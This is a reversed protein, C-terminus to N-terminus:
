IHIYNSHFVLLNHRVMEHITVWLELDMNIHPNRVSTDIIIPYSDNEIGQQGRKGLNNNLNTHVAIVIAVPSWIRPRQQGAAGEGFILKELQSQNERSKLDGGAECTLNSFEFFRNHSMIVTEAVILNYGYTFETDSIHIHKFPLYDVSKSPNSRTILGTRLKQSKAATANKVESMLKAGPIIGHLRCHSIHATNNSDKTTQFASFDATNSRNTKIWQLFNPIPDHAENPLDKGLILYGDSQVNSLTTHAKCDSIYISPRSGQKGKGHTLDFRSDEVNIRRAAQLEILPLAHNLRRSIKLNKIDVYKGGTISISINENELVFNIDNFRVNLCNTFNLTSSTRITVSGACCAKICVSSLFSFDNLKRPWKYEGPLFELTIRRSFFYYNLGPKTPTAPSVEDEILPPLKVRDTIVDRPRWDQENPFRTLNDVVGPFVLRINEMNQPKTQLNAPIKKTAAMSVINSSSSQNLIASNANKTEKFFRHLTDLAESLTPYTSAEAYPIGTMNTFNDPRVKISCGNKSLKSCIKELADHVTPTDAGFDCKNSSFSVDKANIHTLDPFHPRLEEKFEIEEGNAQIIALGACGRWNFPKVPGTHGPIPPWMIDGNDMSQRGAFEWYDQSQLKGSFEVEIGNELKQKTGPTIPIGNDSHIAPHNWKTAIIPGIMSSIANAMHSPFSVSGDPNFGIKGMPGPMHNARLTEDRLEVIDGSEFNMVSDNQAGTLRYKPNGLVTGVDLTARICQRRYKFTPTGTQSSHHIEIYVNNNGGKYAADERILCSDEIGPDGPDLSVQLGATDDGCGPLDVHQGDRIREILEQRSSIGSHALVQNVTELVIKGCVTGRGTTDPGGLGPDRLISLNHYDYDSKTGLFYILYEEGANLKFLSNFSIEEPNEFLVGKIYLHGATVNFGSSVNPIIGFGPNSKPVGIEGIGDKLAIERQHELLNVCTNFDNATNVRGMQFVVKKDGLGIGAITTERCYDLSM